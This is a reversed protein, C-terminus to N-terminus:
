QHPETTDLRLGPGATVKTILRALQPVSLYSSAPTNDACGRAKSCTMPVGAPPVSFRARCPIRGASRTPECFVHIGFFDLRQEWVYSCADDARSKANRPPVCALNPLGVARM